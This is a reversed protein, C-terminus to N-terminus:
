INSFRVMKTVQIEKFSTSRFGITSNQRMPSRLADRMMTITKINCVALIFYPPISILGLYIYSEIANGPITGKHQFIFSMQLLCAVALLSFSVVRAKKVTCREAAKNPKSIGICWEVTAALVLLVDFCTASLYFYKMAVNSRRYFSNYWSYNVLALFRFAFMRTVLQVLNSGAMFSLYVSTSSNDFEDQNWIIMVLINSIIGFCTIVSFMYRHLFLKTKMLTSRLATNSPVRAPHAEGTINEPCLTISCNVHEKGEVVLADNQILAHSEPMDEIHESVNEQRNALGAQSLACIILYTFFTFYM